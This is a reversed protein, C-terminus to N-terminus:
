VAIKSSTDCANRTEGERLIQKRDARPERIWADVTRTKNLEKFIGSSARGKICELSATDATQELESFYARTTFDETM